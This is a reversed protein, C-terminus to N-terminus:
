GSTTLLVGSMFIRVKGAVGTVMGVTCFCDNQQAAGPFATAGTPCAQCQGDGIEDKFRSAALAVAVDVAITCPDHQMTSVPYNRTHIM